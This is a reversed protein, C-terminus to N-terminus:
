PEDDSDKIVIELGKSPKYEEAPKRITVASADSDMSAVSMADGSDEGDGDTMEDVVDAAKLNEEEQQSDDDESESELIEAATATKTCKKKSLLKQVEKTGRVRLTMESMADTWEIISKCSPCPGSRPVIDASSGEHLFNQALCSVHSISSCAGNPCLVFLDDKARIRGHCTACELDDDEDLLFQSKTLVAQLRAFTPDIGEVGGKGILDVKRRKAPRQASSIEELDTEPRPLDLIIGIRSPIPVDVRECWNLWIQYADESFFRVVLPWKTFYPARLLIHLNSLKDLM